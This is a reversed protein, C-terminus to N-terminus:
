DDPWAEALRELERRDMTGPGEGPEVLMRWEKLSLRWFAAPPLGVLVARRLMAAWPTKM